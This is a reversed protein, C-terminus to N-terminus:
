ITGHKAAADGGFSGAQEAESKALTSSLWVPVATRQAQDEPSLSWPFKIAGQDPM